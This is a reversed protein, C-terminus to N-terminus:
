RTPPQLLRRMLRRARQFVQDDRHLQFSSSAASALANLQFAVDAPEIDVPLDGEARATAAERELLDLWRRMASAVADHVPGPRADFEVSATTILCGGPLVEREFFALWADCLALLRRRGPPEHEATRWVERVFLELGAHLTALQLQEKDGFHGILGSKSMELEGALRGISAGEFGRVSAEAVAADLIASRSAAVQASSRRPM